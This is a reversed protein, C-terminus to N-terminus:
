WWDFKPKVFLCCCCCRVPRPVIAIADPSFEAVTPGEWGAPHGWGWGWGSGRLGWGGGTLGAGEGSPAVPAGRGATSRKAPGALSRPCHAFRCRQLFCCIERLFGFVFSLIWFFFPRGTARSSPFRRGTLTHSFIHFCFFFPRCTPPQHLVAKLSFRFLRGVSRFPLPPASPPVSPPAPRHNTPPGTAGGLRRHLPAVRGRRTENSRQRATAVTTGRRASATNKQATAEAM